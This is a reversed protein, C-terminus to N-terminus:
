DTDANHDTMVSAEAREALREARHPHSALSRSAKYRTNRPASLLLPVSEGYRGAGLCFSLWGNGCLRGLAAAGNNTMRELLATFGGSSEGHLASSLAANEPPFLRGHPTDRAEM